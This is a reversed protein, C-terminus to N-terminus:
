HGGGDIVKKKQISWLSDTGLEWFVFFAQALDVIAAPLWALPTLLPVVVDEFGRLGRRGPM